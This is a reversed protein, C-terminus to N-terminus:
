EKKSAKNNISQKVLRSARETEMIGQSNEIIGHETIYLRQFGGLKNILAKHTINKEKLWNMSATNNYVHYSFTNSNEYAGYQSISSLFDESNITTSNSDFPVATAGAIVNAKPNVNKTEEVMKAYWKRSAETNWLINPENWVEMENIHYKKNVEEVYNKFSELEAEDSIHGDDGILTNSTCLLITTVNIDSETVPNDM